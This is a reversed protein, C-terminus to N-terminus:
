MIRKVNVNQIITQQTEYKTYDHYRQIVYKQIHM